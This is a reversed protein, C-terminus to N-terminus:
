QHTHTIIKEKIKARKRALELAIPWDEKVIELGYYSAVILDTYEKESWNNDVYVAHVLTTHNITITENIGPYLLLRTKPANLVEGIILFKNIIRKTKKWDKELFLEIEKANVRETLFDIVEEMMEKRNGLPPGGWFAEIERLRQKPDNAILKLYNALTTSPKKKGSRIKSIYGHSLGLIMELKHQTTHKLIKEISNNM